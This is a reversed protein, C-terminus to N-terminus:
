VGHFIHICSVVRTKKCANEHSLAMYLISPLHLVTYWSLKLASFNQLKRVKVHRHFKKIHFNLITSNMYPNLLFYSRNRSIKKVFTQTYLKGRFKEAEFSEHHATHLPYVVNTAMLLLTHILQHPIAICQCSNTLNNTM